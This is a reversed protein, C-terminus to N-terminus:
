KSDSYLGFFFSVLVVLICAEPLNIGTKGVHSMLLVREDDRGSQRFKDLKDDRVRGTKLGNVEICKIGYFSM